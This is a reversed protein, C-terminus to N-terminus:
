YDWVEYINISTFTVGEKTEAIRVKETNLNKLLYELIPDMSFSNDDCWNYKEYLERIEPVSSQKAPSLEFNSFTM